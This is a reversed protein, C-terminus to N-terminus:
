RQCRLRSVFIDFSGQGGRADSTFYLTKGDKSISAHTESTRGNVNNGLAEAESWRGQEFSSVFIDSHSYFQHVLYLDKGDYSLCVPYTVGVMGMESNIVAPRSWFNDTRRTMMIKKDNPYDVLFILINGDGSIVPNNCSPLDDDFHDLVSQFEFSPAKWWRKNLGTAPKLRCDQLNLSFLIKMWGKM